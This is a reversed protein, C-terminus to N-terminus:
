AAARLGVGFRGGGAFVRFRSSDSSSVPLTSAAISRSRAARSPRKAHDSTAHRNM